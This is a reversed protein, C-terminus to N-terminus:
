ALANAEFFQALLLPFHTAMVGQQEVEELARELAGVVSPEIDKWDFTEAIVVSLQYPEVFIEEVGEIFAVEKVLTAGADGVEQLDEEHYDQLPILFHQIPFDSIAENVHYVRFHPNDTVEREVGLAPQDGGGCAAALLGALVLIAALWLTPRM